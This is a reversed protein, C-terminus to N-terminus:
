GRCSRRHEVTRGRGSETPMCRGRAACAHELEALLDAKVLEMGPLAPGLLERLSTVGRGALGCPVITQFHSLDTTVNLALGHMTVNRRIRVGMACLKALQGDDRQVWVGTAGAERRGRIGYRRITAIVVQELMRMYRGLNLGLPGLRLIPYVVLQGPGHYTIDGGRDTQEVTIGLEALRQEDALLHADIGRRQSLTIVPDHEVLLVTPPERGEIVAQNVARQKILAAAYGLRGLDVVPLRWQDSADDM